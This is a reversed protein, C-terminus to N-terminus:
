HPHVAAGIFIASLFTFIYAQLLAVFIELLSLLIVGAISAPMVVGLLTWNGWVTVIFGLIVALVVHGAFMNAFLRMALVFHRILLGAIEVVFMLIWMPPKLWWPLDMHPVISIWFGVAGSEKMGARVVVILTMVALVMTVNINGTASAFGPIMGLL